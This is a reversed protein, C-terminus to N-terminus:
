ATGLTLCQEYTRLLAAAAVAPAFRARAADKAAPGLRRRLEVDDLLRRVACGLEGARVLVGTDGDVIADMLGGVKTAVVPRGYAMAERATM